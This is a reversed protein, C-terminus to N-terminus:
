TRSPLTPPCCIRSTCPEPAKPTAPPSSTPAAVDVLSGHARMEEYLPYPNQKGAFTLPRGMVDLPDALTGTQSV